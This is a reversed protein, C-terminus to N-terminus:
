NRSPFIGQLAIVYNLTLYPSRNDFRTGNGTIGITVTGSDTSGTDIGTIADKIVTTSDANSLLNGTDLGVTVQSAISKANGPVATGGSGETVKLDATGSGSTGGGSKFEAAHSHPPMNNTTLTSYERGGQRGLPYDELGPGRKSSIASRGRLDPLGFTTRGDGGHTTGILSFLAQNNSISLLRGDCYAWGRPEFNYPVLSIQGLYPDTM